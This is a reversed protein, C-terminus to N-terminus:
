NSLSKELRLKLDAIEDKLDQIEQRLEDNETTKEECNECM